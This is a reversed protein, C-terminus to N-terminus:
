AHAIPNETNEKSAHLTIPQLQQDRTQRSADISPTFERSRTLSIYGIESIVLYRTLARVSASLM